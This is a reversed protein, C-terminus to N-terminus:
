REGAQWKKMTVAQVHRSWETVSGTWSAPPTLRGGVYSGGLQTNVKLAFDQYTIVQVETIGIQELQRQKAEAIFREATSPSLVITPTPPPPPPALPAAPPKVVPAVEAVEEVVVARPIVEAVVVPEKPTVETILPPKVLAEKAAEVVEEPAEKEAKEAIEKAKETADEVPKRRFFAWGAFGLAAILAIVGIM